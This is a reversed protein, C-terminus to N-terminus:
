VDISFRVNELWVFSSFKTKLSVMGNKRLINLKKSIINSHIGKCLFVVPMMMWAYDAVFILLGCDKPGIIILM